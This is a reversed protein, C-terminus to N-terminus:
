LLDIHAQLPLTYPGLVWRGLYQLFSLSLLSSLAISIFKLGLLRHLAYSRMTGPLTFSRTLTDSVSFFPMMIQVKVDESVCFVTTFSFETFISVVNVGPRFLSHSAKVGPFMVPDHGRQGSLVTPPQASASNQLVLLSIGWHLVKVLLGALSLSDPM